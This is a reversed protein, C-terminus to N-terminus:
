VVESPHLKAARPATPSDDKRKYSKVQRTELKEIECVNVVNKYQDELLLESLLDYNVSRRESYSVALRWLRGNADKTEFEALEHMKLFKRIADRIEEKEFNLSSIQDSVTKLRSLTAKLDEEYKLMTVGLILIITIIITIVSFIEWLARM